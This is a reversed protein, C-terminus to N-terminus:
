HPIILLQMPYILDPHSILYSNAKFIDPWRFGDRYFFAAIASLSDGNQVTYIGRAGMLRAVEGQAEELARKTEVLEARRRAAREALTTREVLLAEYRKDIEAARSQAQELTQGAAGLKRALAEGEAASAKAKERTVALVEKLAENESALSQSQQRLKGLARREGALNSKAKAEVREKEAIIASLREIDSNLGTNAHKLSQAEGQLSAVREKFARVDTTLADRQIRLENIEAKSPALVFAIAGGVIAGIVAAVVYRWVAFEKTEM